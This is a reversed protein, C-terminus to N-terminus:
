IVEDKVNRVCNIVFWVAGLLVLAIGVLFVSRTQSMSVPQKILLYPGMDDIEERTFGVETLYEKLLSKMDSPMARIGGDVTVKTSPAEGGAMYTVTEELLAEMNKHDAIPIELAIVGIGAPVAYYYHSTKSQTRTGNSKETYTEESAFCDYTYLVEGKIHMGEEPENDLLYAFDKSPKMATVGYSGSAITLIVGTVLLIVVGTSFSQIITEIKM